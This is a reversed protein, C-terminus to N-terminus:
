RSDQSLNELTKRMVGTSGKIDSQFMGRGDGEMNKGM